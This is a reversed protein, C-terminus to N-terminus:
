VNNLLQKNRINLMMLLFFWFLPVRIISESFLTYTFYQLYFCSFAIDNLDSSKFSKLCAKIAVINLKCFAYLGFIGLAYTIELFSNHVYTLETGQTNWFCSVGFIPSQMIESIARSWLESRGSSQDGGETLFDLIRTMSSAGLYDFLAIMSDLSRYIIFFVVIALLFSRLRARVLLYCSIIVFASILAGRTGAMLMTVLGILIVGTGLWRFLSKNEKNALCLYGVIASTLGLHGYQIVGLRENGQIRLDTTYIINGTFINYLSYCLSITLIVALIIFVYNFSKEIKIRSTFFAPLIMGVILFFFVTSNNSYLEQGRQLIELEVYARIIYFLSFIVYLNNCSLIQPYLITKPSCIYLLFVLAYIAVQFMIVNNVYYSMTLTSTMLLFLIQPSYLRIRNM